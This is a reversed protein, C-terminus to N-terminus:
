INAVLLKLPILSSIHSKALCFHFIQGKSRVLQVASIIENFDDIFNLVAVLSM